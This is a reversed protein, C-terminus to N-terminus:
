VRRKDADRKEQVKCMEWENDWFDGEYVCMEEGRRWVM